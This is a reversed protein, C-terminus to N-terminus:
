RPKGRMGNTFRNTVANTLRRSQRVLYVKSFPKVNKSILDWLHSIDFFWNLHEHIKKDAILLHEYNCKYNWTVNHKYNYWLINYTIKINVDLYIGWYVKMFQM